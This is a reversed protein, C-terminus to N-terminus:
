LSDTKHTDIQPNIQEEFEGEIITENQSSFPTQALLGRSILWKAIPHRFIPILCIFGITDTVFGPTLLLAGGVLLMAGELLETGPIEGRNMRAQLKALTAVGELRLLWIGITATLVVLGVTPLAGIIGGIEILIAMELLPVLIFVAFMFRM